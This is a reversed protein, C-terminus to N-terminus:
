FLPLSPPFRVHMWLREYAVMHSWGMEDLLSIKLEYLKKKAPEADDQIMESLVKLATGLRGLRRERLVLLNGYKSSRVDVWKKLEKFNNEFLDPQDGTKDVDKTGKNADAASAKDGKLSEIEALAFGKQYLAEALQDRTTEMKKKIKEAEEDEPDSKQSFFKVLEYQDVSDIVENAANIVEEKHCIKDGVNSRSLLGELIKALLPTYKPYESKLSASLKKWESCEEDTDQKLSGLVKIKADRVEERLLESVTKTCTSSGKGKEEDVKNPPVVYAIEYTVPNKQPNKEEEQGAFSLKGYSIVGFLISGPPSNKPLKDRAPPSLYFAQKKGPVLTSAKFSGNGMVPGDPQSFFNLRIVDKEELTREIFLVLQKMNELYQVNEHRLYLQLCYEGKPLKSSDPYVDGKAYVRKNTDSIMYFQSEFKTDYIRGNLLPIQPKVEAGDELKFKYTLTLALIQKGSPLKDRDTPLVRLKSEVPQYPVRIKNLVAAPALKESALLAEADIRVPAESGDLLVEEKHIDIGHFEIEFDVITTEHSGMGSSWFQAVALEMTQGGVVPFAFSKATASSFMLVSEWKIPRQLPCVQITDVFFRRTTDFGSTRMTAEVWSAGVPVEIFRREIHGPMFSMRSFSVLPPRSLVAMPKTIIIPIRFIPGRGPAKCDVGYIEYYHLGFKLNTPDVLINFSRGNHTLLLYDPARVVEKETSHLEICEEFPVREELNSADEHFKPEVQVTWETPQQCASAERLYIGRYSPTTTGSLNIEIEYSVCPINQYQQIYEFAKDVQLLGQGTSLKDEAVGGIPASTNEIAKRVIYPSVPIGEAKMASIVLAIGGCASPSAMSTGNMLMRKQLTWISVPAVAGGPASICVGLDGDATPGRSSWTYELGESPPEVASHAAAAMAPSVYAGVGIISSSTGGPAGVTNLGPGTNGASSVFVLRHKNVAENVLDVFRGYDPLLTPEGYSMNILDCKHGVAAILARTLGTGTEMSGLRSDGIKCSILQAGPAVGNLLPEEPHFASAIGAVHTGHPSSDTVISLINGEDYVNVVFTCADLESFM